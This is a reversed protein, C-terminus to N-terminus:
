LEFAYSFLNKVLAGKKKRWLIVLYNLNQCESFCCFSGHVLILSQFIIEKFVSKCCKFIFIFVMESLLLRSDLMASVMHIYMLLYLTGHAGPQPQISFLM